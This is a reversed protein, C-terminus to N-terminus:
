DVFALQNSILFDNTESITYNNYICYIITADRPDKAYLPHHNAIVLLRNTEDLDLDLAIAIQIIKNRGPKRIGQFIQYTYTRDLLSHHIVDSISKHHLALLDGLYDELSRLKLMGITEKAEDYPANQILKELKVTSITKM